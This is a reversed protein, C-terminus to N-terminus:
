LELHKTFCRGIAESIQPPVAGGIIRGLMKKTPVDISEYWDTLFVYDKPFGQLMAGERFSLARDQEPHGYRGAAYNYFKVGIWPSVDDWEMRGYKQSIGRKSGISNRQERSILENPWEALWSGGPGSAKIRKMNLESLWMALHTPDDPSVGGARIAPLDGIADRVTREKTGLLPELVLPQKCGNRTALLVALGRNQAVGFDVCNIVQEFCIYGASELKEKNLKYRNQWYVWPFTVLAFLEPKGNAVADFVADLVWFMDGSINLDRVDKNIHRRTIHAAVLRPQEVNQGNSFNRIAKYWSEHPLNSFFVRPNNKSYVKGYDDHSFEKAELGHIVEVGAQNLGYTMGGCGCFVDLAYITM